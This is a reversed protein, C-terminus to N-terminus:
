VSFSAAVIAGQGDGDDFEISRSTETAMDVNFAGAYRHTGMAEDYRETLGTWTGSGVGYAVALAFGNSPINLSLAGDGDEATDHPTTSGTWGNAAVVGIGCENMAEGFTVVVDGTTGTPLAVRYIAALGRGGGWNEAEVVGSAANGAVSVSDIEAPSSAIASVLIFIERDSDAAGFSQSSFTYTTLNDTDVSNDTLTLTVGSGGGGSSGGRRGNFGSLHSVRLM